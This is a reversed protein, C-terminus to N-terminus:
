QSAARWRMALLMRACASFTSGSSIRPSMRWATAMGHDRFRHHALQAVDLDVRRLLNAREPDARVRARQAPRPEIEVLVLRIAGSVVDPPTVPVHRRQHVGRVNTGRVGRTRPG